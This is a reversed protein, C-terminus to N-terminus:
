SSLGDTCCPLSLTFSVLGDLAPELRLEGQHARALERALSLGLGSGPATGSRAKDVRYFRDFIREEDDVPIPAGTNSITFRATQNRSTLGFRILGKELNYKVANTMLNQLVQMLLAPDALVMVNTALQKELRLHPAIAGADEITSEIMASLNVPELRLNLKGADARALVLLKQVIAKLRQVEELFAGYRRQEESDLPAHQIADDLEGQLIALPTQLEHSADSSFRMAQDFSKQLRDLMSNIVDVLRALERDTNTAPIRQDLAHATIGEATRTILAVPKMARHAILWGGGALLILALPVIILFARRFRDADSYFGAMNMGLLLTYRQNGMIGIRWSGKPTQITRFFPKKIYAPLPSRTVQTRGVAASNDSRNFGINPLRHAQGTNRDTGPGAGMKNNFDPFLAASINTPWHSSKYVIDKRDDSIWVILDKSREGGYIFRLAKDFDRWHVKPPLTHLQSGGLAMLERDIREMGVRNMVSLFYWGAGALLSGSLVISLLAIKVRFM